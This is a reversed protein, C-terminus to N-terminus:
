RRYSPPELPIPQPNKLVWAVALFMLRDNYEGGTELLEQTIEEIEEVEDQELPTGRQVHAALVNAMQAYDGDWNVGGNREWEDAIRGTIRIVEGQMTEAPGNSPVLLNWLEEHQDAWNTTKVVIASAGDHTRRRRVPSVEFTSYLFDLAADARSANEGSFSERHFEFKQGLSEVFGKMAPTRSADGDLMVAVFAPLRELVSNSASRLAVELPTLGQRDFADARAGHAILLRGNDTKLSAAACHLPTGGYSVAHVNAGLALLVAISGNRSRARTHLPTYGGSDAADIDAGRAVLWHALADPCLDFALASQKAYGGRADLECTEFVAQLAALDGAALLEEFNKPLTSKMKQAL